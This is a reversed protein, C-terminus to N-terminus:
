KAEALDQENINSVTARFEKIGAKVLKQLNESRPAILNFGFLGTDEYRFNFAAVSVNEKSDVAEGVAQGLRGVQSLGYLHNIQPGAGLIRQLVGLALCDKPKNLSFGFFQILRQM